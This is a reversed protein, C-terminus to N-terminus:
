KCGRALMCAASFIFSIMIKQKLTQPPGKPPWKKDMWRFICLVPFVFIFFVLIAAITDCLWQPLIM